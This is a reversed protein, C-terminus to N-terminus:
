LLFGLAKLLTMVSYSAAQNSHVTEDSERVNGNFFEFSIYGKVVRALTLFTFGENCLQITGKVATFLALSRFNSAIEEKWVIIAPKRFFFTVVLPRASNVAVLCPPQMVLFSPKNRRWVSGYGYRDIPRCIETWSVQQWITPNKPLLIM